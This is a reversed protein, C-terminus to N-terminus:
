KWGIGKRVETLVVDLEPSKLIYSAGAYTCIGIIVCGAVGGLLGTLTPNQAPIIKLGVAWVAAGMSISGVLTRAFSRSISKWGLPGMKNKLARVLLGLNLISSLSTALALGGHDLPKMLVVGLVVNALISLGAMKVPTRTDQMAFFAAAVIRVASFAWLGLSYYLLAEATLRTAQADFEGREFLLAVIPERLVILGVMAPISIFFVFKLAHDFTNKLAEFDESAAQRSLSPLVATAAAIAFVGLPFQVLRDAFYLYTVSGEALLSGLITGIVINIQYVAGGIIVPPILTGVQRLGPHLLKTKKWFRFGIRWLAPLQIALQLVGGILVGAALGVAPVSLSPSIILVSGIISINLLVPALAPAAFHGLVNLIGMCLAVLGVFFIYPLMLRTLTVTLSFKDAVFGPAVLKVIWPSLFIGGITVLILIVSLLRFASRALHFAESQGRRVIYQTFVPIFASSLSGEAFLRRLLNPIRFAAIFADSSFGAGFFWAIVADRIFGLIRSLLTAAGVVGAAKVVRTNESM